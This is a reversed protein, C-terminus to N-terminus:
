REKKIPFEITFISGDGKESTVTIIGRFDEEVIKKV